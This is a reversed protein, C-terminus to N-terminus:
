NSISMVSPGWPSRNATTRDLDTKFRPKEKTPTSHRVIPSAPQPAPTTKLVTPQTQEQPHLFDFLVKSFNRSELDKLVIQDSWISVRTDRLRSKFCLPLSIIELAAWEKLYFIGGADLLQYEQWLQAEKAGNAALNVSKLSPLKGLGVAVAAPLMPLIIRENAFRQVGGEHAITRTSLM